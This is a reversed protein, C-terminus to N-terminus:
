SVTCGDEDARAQCCTWASFTGTSNYRERSSKSKFCRGWHYTCKEREVQEEQKDVRYITGCRQCLRKDESAAVIKVKEPDPTWRQDIKMLIRGERAPDARPFGNEELQEETLIHKSMVKFLMAEDIDEVGIERKKEISWTSKAGNKGALM